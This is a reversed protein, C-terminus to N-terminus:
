QAHYTVNDGGTEMCYKVYGVFANWWISTAPVLAGGDIKVSDINELERVGMEQDDITKM